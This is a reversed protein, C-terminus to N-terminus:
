IFSVKRSRVLRNLEELRARAMRRKLIRHYQKANVYLPEENDVDNDEPAEDVTGNETKVLEDERSVSDVSYNASGPDEHAAESSSAYIGNTHRYTSPGPQALDLDLFRSTDTSSGNVQQLSGNSHGSHHSHSSHQSHHDARYQTHSHSAFDPGVLHHYGNTTNGGNPQASNPRQYHGNSVGFSSLEDAYSYAFDLGTQGASASDNDSGGGVYDYSNRINDGFGPSGGYSSNPLLSLLPLATNM